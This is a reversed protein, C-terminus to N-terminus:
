QRVGRFEAEGVRKLSAHNLLERLSRETQAARNLGNVVKTQRALWQLDFWTSRQLTAKGELRFSFRSTMTESRSVAVGRDRQQRALENKALTQVGISKEAYLSLQEIKAVLTLLEQQDLQGFYVGQNVRYWPQNVVIRGDGYIQLLSTQHYSVVGSSRSDYEVILESSKALSQAQGIGCALLLLLTSFVKSAM